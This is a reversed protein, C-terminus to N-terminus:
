GFFVKEVYLRSRRMDEEVSRTPRTQKEYALEVILYGQFGVEKLWAAVQRYDIDGDGLDESWVGNRASRLHLSGIRKGAEKLLTMPDQGGRKLWDVDVCFGVLDPDTNRLEYRWERADERLEPAHQHVVLKMNKPKLRKGIENLTRAQNALQADTKREKTPAPNVNVMHAGMSKAVDALTLVKAITQQAADPEHMPGGFYMSFLELKNARLAARTREAMEGEFFGNTLEVRRYGARATGALAEEITAKQQQGVLAVFRDAGPHVEEDQRLRNGVNGALVALQGPQLDHARFQ